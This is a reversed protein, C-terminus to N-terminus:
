YNNESKGDKGDVLDEFDQVLKKRYDTVKQDNEPLDLAKFGTIDKWYIWSSILLSIVGLGILFYFSKQYCDYDQKVQIWGFIPPLVAGLFNQFCIVLGLMFTLAQSPLSISLSSWVASTMLSWFLAVGLMGAYPLTPSGYPIFSMFIYVGICMLSSIVLVLSKKGIRGWVYSFSPILAMNILPIVSVCNKSQTYTFGYRKIFLDTSFTTFMYFANGLIAFLINLMWSIGSMSGADKWRFKRLKQDVPSSKQM